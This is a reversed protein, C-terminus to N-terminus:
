LTKGIEATFGDHTQDGPLSCELLYCVDALRHYIKSSGCRSPQHVVRWSIRYVEASAAYMLQYLGCFRICLVDASRYTILIKGWWIIWCVDASVACSIDCWSIYWLDDPVTCMLQPVACKLQYVCIDAPAGCLDYSIRLIIYGCHVSLPCWSLLVSCSILCM